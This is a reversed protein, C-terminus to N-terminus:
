NDICYKTVIPSTITKVRQRNINMSCPRLLNNDSVEIRIAFEEEQLENVIRVRKRSGNTMVENEKFQFLIIPTFHENDVIANITNIRILLAVSSRYYKLRDQFLPPPRKREATHLFSYKLM